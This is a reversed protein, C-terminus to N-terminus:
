SCLDKTTEGLARKTERTNLSYFSVWPRQEGGVEKDEYEEDDTRKRRVLPGWRQEEGWADALLIAQLPHETKTDEKALAAGQAKSSM